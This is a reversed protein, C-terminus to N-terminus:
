VKEKEKKVVDTSIGFKGWGSKRSSTPPKDKAKASEEIEWIQSQLMIAVNLNFEYMTMETLVEYPTKKYRKAFQDVIVLLERQKFFPEFDTM